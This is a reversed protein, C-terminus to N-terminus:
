FVLKRPLSGLLVSVGSVKESVKKLFSLALLTTYWFSREKLAGNRKFALLFPIVTNFRIFFTRSVLSAGIIQCSPACFAYFYVKLESKKM